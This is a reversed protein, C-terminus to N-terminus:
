LIGPLVLKFKWDPQYDPFVSRIAADQAEYCGLGELAPALEVLQGRVKLWDSITRGLRLSESSSAREPMFLTHVRQPGLAKVALAAVVSSDVGGSLGVVIGKRKFRGLVQVRIWESIRAVEAAADIELVDKSFGTGM